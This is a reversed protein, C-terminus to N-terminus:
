GVAASEAATAGIITFEFATAYLTAADFRRANLNAGPQQGLWDVFTQMFKPHAAALLSSALTMYHRLWEATDEGMAINKAIRERECFDRYDAKFRGNLVKNWIMWNDYIPFLSPNFFHLFKSVTMLPFNKNPKIGQMTLLRSELRIGTGSNRFNLLNISGGWRFEGFAKTITKFTQEASWVAESSRRRFVNWVPSRLADYIIEFNHFAEKERSSPDFAISSADYLKLLQEDVPWTGEWADYYGSLAKRQWYEADFFSQLSQM